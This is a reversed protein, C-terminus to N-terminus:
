FAGGEELDAIMSNSASASPALDGTDDNERLWGRVQDRM